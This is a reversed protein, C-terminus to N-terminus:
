ILPYLRTIKGVDIDVEFNIQLLINKFYFQSEQMRIKEGFTLLFILSDKVINAPLFFDKYKGTGFSSLAKRKKVKM